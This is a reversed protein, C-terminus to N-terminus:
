KPLRVIWGAQVDIGEEKLALRYAINQLFSEEYVKKGTKFDVVVLITQFNTVGEQGLDVTMEALLDLTGGFGFVNSYLRKEIAIPKLKVQERWEVWRSWSREAAESTLAPPDTARVLGLEGKFTWEARKHVETGVNAAVALLERNAPKGAEGVLLETFKEPSLPEDMISIAKRYLLGALNAVKKREERAAWSILAPKALAGLITTVSPSDGGLPFMSKVADIVLPILTAIPPVDRKVKKYFRGKKTNVQEIDSM